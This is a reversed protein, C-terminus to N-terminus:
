RANTARFRDGPPLASRSAPASNTSRSRVSSARRPNAPHAAEGHEARPLAALVGGHELEGERARAAGLEDERRAAREPLIGGRESPAAPGVQERVRDRLREHAEGLEGGPRREPVPQRGRPDERAVAQSLEGGVAAGARERGLLGEREGRPARLEHVGGRRRPAPEDREAPERERAGLREGGLYAGLDRDRVARIVAHDATGRARQRLELRAGRRAPAVVTCRSATPTAACM